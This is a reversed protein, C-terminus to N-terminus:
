HDTDDSAFWNINQLRTECNHSILVIGNIAFLTAPYYFSRFQLESMM